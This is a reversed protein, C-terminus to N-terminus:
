RSNWTSVREHGVRPAESRCTRYSPGRPRRRRTRPSPSWRRCRGPRRPNRRWAASFEERLIELLGLADIEGLVLERELTQLFGSFLRLDLQRRCLRGLDVLDSSCLDSSWDSM